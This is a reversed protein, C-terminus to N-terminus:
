ARFRPPTYKLLFGKKDQSPIISRDSWSAPKDRESRLPRSSTINQPEINHVSIDRHRLHHQQDSRM